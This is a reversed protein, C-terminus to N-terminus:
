QHSDRTSLDLPLGRRLARALYRPAHEFARARGGLKPPLSLGAELQSQLLGYLM